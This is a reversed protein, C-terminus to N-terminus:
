TLLEVGESGRNLNAQRHEFRHEGIRGAALRELPEDQIQRADRGLLRLRSRGLGTEVGLRLGLSRNRTLRGFCQGREFLLAGDGRLQPVLEVHGCPPNGRELM